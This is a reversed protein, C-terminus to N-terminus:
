HRNCPVCDDFLYTMGTRDRCLKEVVLHKNGRIDCRTTCMGITDDWRRALQGHKVCRQYVPVKYDAGLRVFFLMLFVPLLFKM